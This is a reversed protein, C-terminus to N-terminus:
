VFRSYRAVFAKYTENPTDAWDEFNMHQCVWPVGEGKNNGLASLTWMNDKYPSLTIASFGLPELRKVFYDKAKGVHDWAERITRAGIGKRVESLLSNVAKQTSRM